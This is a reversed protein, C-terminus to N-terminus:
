ELPGSNCKVMVRVRISVMVRVKNCIVTTLVSKEFLLRKSCHVLLTSMLRVIAPLYKSQHSIFTTM